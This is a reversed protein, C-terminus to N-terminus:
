WYAGQDCVEAAEKPIYQSPMNICWPNDDIASWGWRRYRKGLVGFLLQLHGGIDMGVRGMEKVASALPIALGAAGILAVDFVRQRLQAVIDDFLAIADPYARQTDASFGYPFELAEISAPHFWKKHGAKSWVGEFIEETAREKLVEAFPCVILIRRGRFLPLYCTGEASPSDLDVQQNLYDTLKNTLRYHGLVEPEFPHYHCIGVCDLNRVHHLYFENFQMYFDPSAPFIGCQKLGHFLLEKRFAELKAPDREKRIRLPYYMCQQQSYGLKGSAYGTGTSLARSLDALFEQKSICPYRWDQIATRVEQLGKHVLKAYPPLHKRLIPSRKLYNKVRQQWRARSQNHVM